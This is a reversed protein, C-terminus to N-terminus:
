YFRARDDRVGVSERLANFLNSEARTKVRQALSNKESDLDTPEPADIRTIMNVVYVATEGRLPASIDGENLSFIKGIVEYETFGGPLSFTNRAVENATQVTTGLDAALANLDTNGQMRKIFDEAKKEKIVERTYQERVDELRPTGEERIGTVIAVV